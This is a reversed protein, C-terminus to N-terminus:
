TSDVYHNTRSGSGGGSNIEEKRIFVSQDTAPLRNGSASLVASVSRTAKINKSKNRRRSIARDPRLSEYDFRLARSESVTLIRTKHHIQAADSARRTHGTRVPLQPPM